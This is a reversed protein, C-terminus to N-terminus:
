KQATEQVDTDGTKRLMFGDYFRTGPTGLAFDRDAPVVVNGNKAPNQKSPPAAVTMLPDWPSVWQDFQRNSTEKKNRSRSYDIDM